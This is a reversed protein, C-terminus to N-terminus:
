GARVPLRLLQRIWASTEPWRKVVDEWTVREVRYGLRRLRTERVKERRLAGDVYKELGDIELILRQRPFLMDVRDRGIWVQLEPSPFGDDHLRLRTLSELPSEGLPTALALVERAQRIGPWGTADAIAADLAARDVLHERLAADTAMIADWRDHRAADVLTRAVTTVPVGYWAACDTPRLAAGYVHTAGRRRGLVDAALATLEPRDPVRFTPLGHVIAASRGSIVHRSRRRVAAAAALAHRRRALVHVRDDRIDMPAVYGYGASTWEGRLVKTRAAQRSIGRSGLESPSLVFGDIAAALGCRSQRRWWNRWEAVPGAVEILDSPVTHVLVNDLYWDPDPLDTVRRHDVRTPGSSHSIWM